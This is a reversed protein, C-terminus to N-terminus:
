PAASQPLYTTNFSSWSALARAKKPANAASLALRQQQQPASVAVPQDNLSKVPAENWGGGLAKYLAILGTASGTRAQVLRDQAELQSREADLVDLFSSAGGDFRIRALEAARDSATVSDRLHDLQERSRGYAVLTNETEELARLVTQEYLALSGDRRAKTQDIRAKVRGLDLAAWSIGPGYGWTEGVSHGIQDTDKVAFGVEGTFTVRPFLDATAVGIDATSAALRREVSRVDARRRLLDEPRGISTVRPLEPLAAAPRLESQLATPVQGSLVSLRHITNEVTTEIVPIAALTTSLQARARSVDFETGGGADFRAEAYRVTELQNAANRRAVDLREQAGRLEFYNRAVEAAVSIQADHLNAALAEEGAKVSENARRVRGFLDLEWYADFSGNYVGNERQDRDYGPAQASAQLSRTYGGQATITPLYDFRAERRLARAENLNALAIRLDHNAGLSRDVLASLERDDFLTWFQLQPNAADYVGDTAAVNMASDSNGVIQPAEPKQYDPGVACAALLASLLAAATKTYPIKFHNKHTNM